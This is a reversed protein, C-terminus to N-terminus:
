LVKRNVNNEDISYAESETFPTDNLMLTILEFDGDNELFQELTPNEAKPSLIIDTNVTNIISAIGTGEDVTIDYQNSYDQFHYETEDDFFQNQIKTAAEHHTIPLVDKLLSNTLAKWKGLLDERDIAKAPDYFVHSIHTQFVNIFQHTKVLAAFVGAGLLASGSKMCFDDIWDFKVGFITFEMSFISGILLLSLGGWFFIFILRPILSAKLENYFKAM